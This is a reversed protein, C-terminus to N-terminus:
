ALGTIAARSPAPRPGRLEPSVPDSTTLTPADPGDYFPAPTYTLGALAANLAALTGTCTLSSTGNGAATLGALTALTLTGHNVTLTIQLPDTGNNDPDSVSLAPAASFLLPVNEDTTQPGPVRNVPPLDRGSFESTGPPGTATSTLYPHAADPTYTFLLSAFGSADTTVNVFGLYVQGEGHGSPDYADNAFLE